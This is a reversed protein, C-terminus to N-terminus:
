ERVPLQLVLCPVSTSYRESLTSYGCPRLRTFTFNGLLVTQTSQENNRLELADVCSSSRGVDWVKGNVFAVKLDKHM